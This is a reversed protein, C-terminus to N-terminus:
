EGRRARAAAARRQHRNLHRDTVPIPQTFAYGEPYGDAGYVYERWEELTM